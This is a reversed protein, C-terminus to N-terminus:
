STQAGLYAEIVAPDNRIQAPTGEALKRGFNLVVVHDSVGMLFRMHHEVVLVTTGLTTRTERVLAALADIEGANLGAAPEDLLLLAPEAALARALEVRKQLGFPLEDARTLAVRELDVFALLERAKREVTAEERRMARTRILSAWLGSHTRCHCGVRVNDLVNMAGFLALNQFTRGIGLGAIGQRALAGIPQDRWLIDGTSPAYLRSICNFLSSKGAGNPGILGCITHEEVDFSVGDLALVGGFSLSVDRVSLLVSGM